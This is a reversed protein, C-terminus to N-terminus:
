FAVVSARHGPHSDNHADADAQAAERTPHSPGKWGGAQPCDSCGAFYSAYAGEQKSGDGGGAETGTGHKWKHAMSHEDFPDVKKVIEEGPM